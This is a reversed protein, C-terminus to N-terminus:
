NIRVVPLFIMRRKGTMRWILFGYLKSKNKLTIIIATNFYNMRIEYPDAGGRKPKLEFGFLALVQNMKDMRVTQKGQEIDRIFRLGVGAKEALQEQTLNAKVRHYKVFSALHSLNKM